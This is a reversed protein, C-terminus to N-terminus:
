EKEQSPVHVEIFFMAAMGVLVDNGLVTESMVMRVHVYQEM